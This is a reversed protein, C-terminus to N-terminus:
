KLISQIMRGILMFLKNIIFLALAVFSTSILAKILWHLGRSDRFAINPFYYDLLKFILPGLFTWANSFLLFATIFTVIFAYNVALFPSVVKAAWLSLFLGGLVGLIQITLIVWRNRILFHKNRFNELQEKINSFSADVWEKNDDQVVLLCNDANQADFRLEIHKGQSRNSTRSEKSDLCFIVRELKRAENFYKMIEEFSYLLFGKNDFRIIYSQRLSQTSAESTLTANFAETIGLLLQNIKGLRLENLSINRITADRLYDSM